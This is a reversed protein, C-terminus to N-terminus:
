LLILAEYSDLCPITFHVFSGDFFFPLKKKTKLSVIDKISADKNWRASVEINQVPICRHFSSGNFGSLNILQLNYAAPAGPHYENYFVEICPPAKIKVSPDLWSTQLSTDALMFKHEDYGYRKYLLGPQFAYLMTRKERNIVLAYEGSPDNGGCMEPPGFRGVRLKELAYEAGSAAKVPVLLSDLISWDTEAL